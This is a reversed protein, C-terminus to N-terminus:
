PNGGTVAIGFGGKTGGIFDQNVDTGNLNARGITTGSGRDGWDAWFIYKGDAALFAIEGKLGTIFNPDADTGNLNARGIATGGGATFYIYDGQIAIGSGSSANIFDNNVDKGDLKARGISSGV